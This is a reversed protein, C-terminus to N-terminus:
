SIECSAITGIQAQVLSTAVESRFELTVTTNVNNSQNKIIANAFAANNGATTATGVVEFYSSTGGAVDYKDGDSLGTAAAANAINVTIFAAGQANASASATQVVRIGYAGGTSLAASTFILIGKITGTKGPPITFTHGTLVAPTVTNNDQTATLVASQVSAAGLNNRAETATSAGTGGDAVALDTIGTISGGTISVSNAEQTSITGLGLNTRADTANNAGMGGNALSLPSSFSGTSTFWDTGDTFITVSGNPQQTLTIASTGDILELGFPRIRVTNAVNTGLLHFTFEPSIDVGSMSAYVTLPDPLMIDYATGNRVLNLSAITSSDLSIASTITRVSKADYGGVQLAAGSTTSEFNYIGVGTKGNKLVTFADSRTGSDAGNGISFARDTDTATPIYETNYTGISYENDSYAKNGNGGAYSNLGFSENESGAAHSNEGSATTNSGEAFSNLGSATTATGTTFSVDGSANDGDGFQKARNTKFRATENNDVKVVFDNADTTGIFDTSPTTGANGTLSWGSGSGGGSGLNYKGNTKTLGNLNVDDLEVLSVTKSSQKNYIVQIKDELQKINPKNKLKNYDITEKLTDIKSIIEKPTDKMAVEKIIETKEILKEVIPVEIKSVIENKDDDTLIYDKGDDGKIPEPILPKILETLEQNTPTKGDKVIPILPKILETLEQNTPTDGKDGKEGKITLIEAGIIQIKQVDEKKTNDVIKELKDNAEQTKVLMGEIAPELGDISDLIKKRQVVGMETGQELENLIKNTENEM